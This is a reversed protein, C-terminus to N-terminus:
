RRKKTKRRRKKKSKKRKTKRKKHKKSRHKKSRHKRKTRRKKFPSKHRNKLNGGDYIDDLLGTYAPPPPLTPATAPAPPPSRMATKPIPAFRGLNGNMSNEVDRKLQQNEEIRKEIATIHKKTGFEEEKVEISSLSGMMAFYSKAEGFFKNILDNETIGFDKEKQIFKKGLTRRLDACAQSNLGKSHEEIEEKTPGENDMNITIIPCLDNKAANFFKAGFTKKQKMGNTIFWYVFGNEILYIKKKVEKLAKNIIDLDEQTTQIGPRQLNNTEVEYILEDIKLEDIKFYHDKIADEKFNVDKSNYLFHDIYTNLIIGIQTEFNGKEIKKKMNEKLHSIMSLIKLYSYKPHGNNEVAKVLEGLKRNWSTELAIGTIISKEPRTLEIISDLYKTPDAGLLKKTKPFIAEMRRDFRKIKIRLTPDNGYREEYKKKKLNTKSKEVKREISAKIDKSLGELFDRGGGSMRIDKCDEWHHPVCYLGVLGGIFCGAGVGTPNMSAVGVIGGVICGGLWGGFKIAAYGFVLAASEMASGVANRAAIIKSKKKHKEGEDDNIKKRKGETDGETEEETQQVEGEDEYIKDLIVEVEFLTLLKIAVHELSIYLPKKNDGEVVQICPVENKQHSLHMEKKLKKDLNKIPKKIIPIIKPTKKLFFSFDKIGKGNITYIKLAEGSSDLEWLGCKFLRTFLKELLKQIKLMMKENKHSQHRGANDPNNLNNLYIKLLNYIINYKLLVKSKNIIVKINRNPNVYDQFPHNIPVKKYNNEIIEKEKEKEEIEEDNDVDKLDYTKTKEITKSIIIEMEKGDEDGIENNWIQGKTGSKWTRKEESWEAGGDGGMDNLNYREGTAFVVDANNSDTLEGYRDKWKLDEEPTDNSSYLLKKATEWDENSASLIELATKFLQEVSPIEDVNSENDM